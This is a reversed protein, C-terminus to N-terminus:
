VCLSLCMFVGVNCVFVCMANVVWEGDLASTLSLTCSYRYEVRPRRPRDSHSSYRVKVNKWMLKPGSYASLFNEQLTALIALGSGCPVVSGFCARCRVEDYAM